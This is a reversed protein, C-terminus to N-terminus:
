KKRIHGIMEEIAISLAMCVGCVIGMFIGKSEGIYESGSKTLEYIPIGILRVLSTEADTSYAKTYGFFIAIAMILM